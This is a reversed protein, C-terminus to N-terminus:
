LTTHCINMWQRIALRRKNALISIYPLKAHYEFIGPNTSVAINACINQIHFISIFVSLFM